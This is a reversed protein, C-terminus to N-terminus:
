KVLVQCSVVHILKLKPLWFNNKTTKKKIFCHFINNQELELRLRGQLHVSYLLCFTMVYNKGQLNFGTVRNLIDFCLDLVFFTIFVKKYWMACTLKKEETMILMANQLSKSM